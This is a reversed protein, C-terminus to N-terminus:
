TISQGSEQSGLLRDFEHQIVFYCECSTKELIRVNKISINARNYDIAGGAKLGAMTLSVTTRSVGFMEAIFEHTLDFEDSRVRDRVELLWRACRAEYNHLRNCGVNQSIQAIMAQTYKLMVSRMGTNRNFETKLPEAAIKLATGPVQGVYETQTTERGGMFANIGVVERSGVAGAEVTMGNTMTVTISIICTLPFYLFQIEEGPHHVVQHREIGVVELDPKVRLYVDRPLSDLLKNGTNVSASFTADICRNECSFVLGNRQM